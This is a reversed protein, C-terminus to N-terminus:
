RKSEKARVRRTRSRMSATMTECLKEHHKHWREGVAHGRIHQQGDMERTGITLSSTGGTFSNHSKPLATTGAMPSPSAPTSALYSPSWRRLHVEWMIHLSLCPGWVM